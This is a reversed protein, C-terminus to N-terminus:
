KAKVSTAKVKTQESEYVKLQKLQIDALRKLAWEIQAASPKNFDQIAQLDAVSQDYSEKLAKGAADKKPYLVNSAGFVLSAMILIITIALIIKKM